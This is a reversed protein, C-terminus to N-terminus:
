LNLCPLPLATVPFIERIQVHSPIFFGIELLHKMTTFSLVVTEVCKKEVDGMEGKKAIIINKHARFAYNKKGKM